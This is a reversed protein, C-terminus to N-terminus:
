GGGAWALAEQRGDFGAIDVVRGDRLSLVLWALARGGREQRDTTGAVVLGVLIKDGVVATGSVRATAGAAHGREYWSLVQERTQCPPSPDGPSGWRVNPDLLEGIAALDGAELATSVQRALQEISDTSKSM